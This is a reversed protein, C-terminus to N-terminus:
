TLQGREYLSVMTKGVILHDVVCIEITEVRESKGWLFRDYTAIWEDKAGSERMVADADRCLIRRVRDRHWLSMLFGAFLVVAIAAMVREYM